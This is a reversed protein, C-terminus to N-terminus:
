KMTVIEEASTPHIAVCADFDRKRAGMKVAVAFGQLMESVGLGILHLGVIREEDGECIIKFETPLHKKEEAPFFDYFMAAFKTHYIKLNGAGYKELAQPETLGITGVEPHAFVVSPVFNYSLAAQSFQTPGFLRNSLQRGAAPTLQLQATVDGLAYVGEVNTNQFGDVRVHGKDDTLVGAVGLNLDETDPSRGVAWLVENVVFGKGDDGDWRLNLVKEEATKKGSFMEVRAFNKYGRHIVIGAEEYTRTMTESIMPDFKRLIKDGRIFMHVEIGGLANLMGAMEVAIYGAGVIAIKKPLEELGFFEDSTIGFQAGSIKPVIPKGGTAICIHEAKFTEVGTGDVLEVAITKAAIFRAGGRVLTIGEREWNTEYGRNLGAINADRKAKFAAYNYPINSPTEYGYHQSARLAESMSSFNWTHKKPVCGVNVCTGGSKGSEVLLVRKGWGGKIRPAAARRATGSGGSGGGIVIYDFEKVAGRIPIAPMKRNLGARSIPLASKAVSSIASLTTATSTSNSSSPTGASLSNSSVAILNTPPILTKTTITLSPPSPRNASM